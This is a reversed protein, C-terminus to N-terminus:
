IHQKLKLNLYHLDNEMLSESLELMNVVKKTKSDYQIKDYFRNIINKNDENNMINIKEEATNITDELRKLLYKDLEKSKDLLRIQRIADQKLRLYRRLGTDYIKFHENYNRVNSIDMSIVALLLPIMIISFKIILLLIVIVLSINSNEYVLEIDSKERYLLNYKNLGEILQAGYGFRSVFQDAQQEASIRSNQFNKDDAFNYGELTNKVIVLAELANKDKLDVKFAKKYSIKILNIPDEQNISERISDMLLITNKVSYISKEISTFTHGIEHLIGALLNDPDRNLGKDHLMYSIDMMVIVNFDKPLNHIKANKIDIIVNSKDLTNKLSLFSKYLVNYVDDVNKDYTKINKIDKFKIDKNKPNNIYKGFSYIFDNSSDNLINYDHPYTTFTCLGSNNRYLIKINFGFRETLIKNINDLATDIGDAKFFKYASRIDHLIIKDKIFELEKEIKKLFSVDMQTHIMEHTLAEKLLSKM